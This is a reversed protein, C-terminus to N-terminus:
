VPNKANEKDEGGDHLKEMTIRKISQGIAVLSYSSPNMALNSLTERGKEVLKTLKGQQYTIFIAYGVMACVSLVSVVYVSINIFMSDLKVDDVLKLMPEQHSACVTQCVRDGDEAM